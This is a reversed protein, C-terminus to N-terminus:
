KIDFSFEVDIGAYTDDDKGRLNFDKQVYTKVKVNDVPRFTKGIELERTALHFDDETTQYSKLAGELYIDHDFNLKVKVKNKFERDAAWLEPATLPLGVLIALLIYRM